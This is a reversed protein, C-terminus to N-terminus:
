AHRPPCNPWSCSQAPPRAPPAIALQRGVVPGGLAAQGFCRCKKKRFEKQQLLKQHAQQNIRAAPNITADNRLNPPLDDFPKQKPPKPPNEEASAAAALLLVVVLTIAIIAWGPPGAAALPAEEALVTAGGLEAAALIEAGEASLVLAEGMAAPAVEAAAGIAQLATRMRQLTAAVRKLNNTKAIVNEMHQLLARARATDGRRVAAWFEKAHKQLGLQNFIDGWESGM